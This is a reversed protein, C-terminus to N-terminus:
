DGSRRARIIVQLDWALLIAAPADAEGADLRHRGERRLREDLTNENMWLGSIRHPDASSSGPRPAAGAAGALWLVALAWVLRGARAMTISCRAM